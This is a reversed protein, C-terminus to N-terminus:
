KRNKREQRYSTHQERKSCATFLGVRAVYFRVDRAAAFVAVFRRAFSKFKCEVLVSFTIGDNADTSALLRFNHDGRGMVPLRYCCDSIICEVIAGFKLADRYQAADFLDATLRERNAATHCADRNWVGHRLDVVACEIVADTQRANRERVAKDFDPVNHELGAGTQRTNDNGIAHGLETVSNEIKATAQRADRDRAIDGSNEADIM